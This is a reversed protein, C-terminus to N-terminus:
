VHARGIENKENIFINNNNDAVVGRGGTFDSFDVSEILIGSDSWGLQPNFTKNPVKAINDNIKIKSNSDNYKIFSPLQIEIDQMYVEEVSSDLGKLSLSFSM